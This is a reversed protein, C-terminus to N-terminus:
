SCLTKRQMGQPSFHNKGYKPQPRFGRLADTSLSLKPSITSYRAKGCNASKAIAGIKDMAKRARSEHLGSTRFLRVASCRM